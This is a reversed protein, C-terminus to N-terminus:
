RAPQLVLRHLAAKDVAQRSFPLPFTRGEYWADWQDMYHPSLLHGSQGTVTNLTSNDLDSFDVTLRESPGFSRAVQKVTYSGGSQERLGPGSWRRLVPINRFVPHEIELPYAQGWTLKELAGADAISKEVASAMLERYGQRNNPLWDPSAARVTKELWVPAMFWHYGSLDPGLKPELLMRLLQQRARFEITAATSDKQLRGDWAHLLRAAERARPSSSPTGEVAEAFLSAMRLDYASYVDTQLELMDRPSLKRGSGLVSLIRRTRFPPDWQTALPYPYGDPAIRSNATALIGSPPDFVRPLQEFPVYGTWEHGDDWGAVPVSGDGAARLPIWGTAQYGIHGDVDAYVVNQGPGGFQSFAARFEDWNRASNVAFFPANFLAPDYMTWKLALRRTEGPVLDTVIPGHRTVTVDIVVVDSGKVQIVERRREPRRWGSPTRYEGAGNFEEIYIDEVDPGLNTFGWAIRRNHGVVVWPVGPLTVGEVDYTGCQLHAVYWLNPVQHGLHMDNCLLPRGSLTHAGSVVWNNSGPVPQRDPQIGDWPALLRGTDRVPSAPAADPTGSGPQPPADEASSSPYLEAALRPGLRAFVKERALETGFNYHNLMQCMYAVVLLSDETTWPRPQYRMVRFELPLHELQDRMSANIGRVYADLYRRQQPLLREVAQAAAHRLGLIRQTRDHELASAGVVESLAGGAYRRIMDLQWLRDQATVYGQAMFLDDPQTAELHPVGLGDRLVTVPATLGAIAMEGDVQPLAAKAAWYFWGGAALVAATVILIAFLVLRFVKRLM